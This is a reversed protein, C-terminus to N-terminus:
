LGSLSQGVKINNKDSFGANVELVYDIPRGPSYDVLKDDPTGSAPVPINKNIAVVKGNAIWIMDLPFLMGKMWFTETVDKTDFVFLMGNDESLSARGGLGKERTTQTNAIEVNINKGAVTIVKTIVPTPSGSNTSNLYKGWNLSASNKSLLGVLVIFAMVGLIPLILQKFM